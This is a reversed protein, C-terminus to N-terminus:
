AVLAGLLNATPVAQWLWDWRGVQVHSEIEIGVVFKFILAVTLHLTALLWFILRTHPFYLSSSM